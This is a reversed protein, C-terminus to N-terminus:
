KEDNNKLAVAHGSIRYIEVFVVTWLDARKILFIHIKQWYDIVIHDSKFLVCVICMGRLTTMTTQLM